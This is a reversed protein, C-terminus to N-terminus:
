AVQETDIRFPLKVGSVDRFDSYETVLDTLQGAVTQKQVSKVVHFDGADVWWSESDGSALKVELHYADKDGLKERGVLRWQHGKAKADLLPGDFDAQRRLGAAEADSLVRPATSGQTPNVEWGKGDAFVRVVAGKRTQIESRLHDPRQRYLVFPQKVDQVLFDGQTRISRLEKLRAAGGRAEVARSLIQDVTLDNAAATAPLTLALALLTSVM